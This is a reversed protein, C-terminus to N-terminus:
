FYRGRRQMQLMRPNKSVHVKKLQQEMEDIQGTMLGQKDDQRAEKLLRKAEKKNGKRMQGAALNLKAMAKDHGFMLGEKLAERMHKEAANMDDQAQTIGKMYHYYGRQGPRIQAKPNTIKNMWKQAGAIDQKRLRLFALAIYENIFYFFFAVLGGLLALTGASAQGDIYFYTALGILALGAVLKIAKNM